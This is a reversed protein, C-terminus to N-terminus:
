LLTGLFGKFCYIRGQCGRLVTFGGRVGGLCVEPDMGTISFWVLFAQVPTQKEIFLNMYCSQTGTPWNLSSANRKRKYLFYQVFYMENASSVQKLFTKRSKTYCLLLNHTYWCHVDTTRSAPCATQCRAQVWAPTLWRKAKLWGGGPPWVRSWPDEATM